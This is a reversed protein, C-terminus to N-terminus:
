VNTILEATAPVVLEPSPAAAAEKAPLIKKNGLASLIMLLILNFVVKAWSHMYTDIYQLYM